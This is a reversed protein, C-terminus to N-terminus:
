FPAAEEERMEWLNAQDEAVSAATPEDSEQLEWRVTVTGDDNFTMDLGDTSALLELIGDWDEQADTDLQHITVWRQIQAVPHNIMSSVRLGLREAGTMQQRQAPAKQAMGM